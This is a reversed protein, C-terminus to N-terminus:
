LVHIEDGSHDVVIVNAVEMSKFDDVISNGNIM